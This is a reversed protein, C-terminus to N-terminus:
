RKSAYKMIAVLMGSTKIREKKVSGEKDFMPNYMKKPTTQPQPQAKQQLPNIQGANLDQSNNGGGFAYAGAGLGGAVLGAAGLGAMGMNKADGYAMDSIGSSYQNPANIRSLVPNKGQFAKGFGTMANKLEEVEKPQLMNPKMGLLTRAKEVDGSQLLDMFDDAVNLNRGTLRNYLGAVPKGLAGGATMGAIAGHAPVGLMSGLTGGLIGGAIGGIGQARTPDVPMKMMGETAKNGGYVGRRAADGLTKMHQMTPVDIANFSNKAAADIMKGFNPDKMITAAPIGTASSLIQLGLVDNADIDGLRGRIGQISGGRKSMIDSYLSKLYNGWSDADQFPSKNLGPKGLNKAQQTYGAINKEISPLLNGQRVFAEVAEPGAKSGPASIEKALSRLNYAGLGAGAAGGIGGYLLANQIRDSLTPGRYKKIGLLNEEETGPATAFGLAGGGLGGAIGASRGGSLLLDKITNINAIGLEGSYAKARSGVLASLQKGLAEQAAPNANLKGFNKSAQSSLLGLIGDLPNPM